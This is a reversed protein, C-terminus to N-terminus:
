AGRLHRVAAQAVASFEGILAGIIGSGGLIKDVWLIELARNTGDSDKKTLVIVDLDDEDLEFHKRAGELLASGVSWAWAVGDEGLAELGSVNLRLTDAKTQHGLAVSRPEGTCRKAHPDQDAKPDRVQRRGRKPEEKPPAPMPKVMEGCNPCM